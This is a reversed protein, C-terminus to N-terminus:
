TEFLTSKDQAQYWNSNHQVQFHTSWDQSSTLLWSISIYLMGVRIHGSFMNITVLLGQLAPYSKKISHFTGHVIYWVTVAIFYFWDILWTAVFWRDNLQKNLLKYLGEDFFYWDANSARQSPFEGTVPLSGAYLALLASFAEMHHRRIDCFVGWIGGTSHVIYAAERLGCLFIVWLEASPRTQVPLLVTQLWSRCTDYINLHKHQTYFYGYMQYTKTALHEFMQWKPIWKIQKGTNRLTAWPVCPRM